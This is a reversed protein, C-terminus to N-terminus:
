TTRHAVNVEHQAHTGDCKPNAERIMNWVDTLRASIASGSTGGSLVARGSNFVNVKTGSDPFTITCCPFISPDYSCQNPYKLYLAALDVTEEFNCTCVTNTHQVSTATSKTAEVADLIRNLSNFRSEAGMTTVNGSSFAIITNKPRITKCTWASYKCPDLSGAECTDVLQQQSIRTSLVAVTVANTIRYHFNAM